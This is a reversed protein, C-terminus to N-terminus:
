SVEETQINSPLLPSLFTWPSDGVVDLKILTILGYTILLLFFISAKAWTKASSRDSGRTPTSTTKSGTPILSEAEKQFFPANDTEGLKMPRLETVEDESVGPGEVINSDMTEVTLLKETEEAGNAVSHNGDFGSVSQNEDLEELDGSGYSL